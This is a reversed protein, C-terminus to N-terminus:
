LQWKDLEESRTTPTSLKPKMSHGGKNLEVSM